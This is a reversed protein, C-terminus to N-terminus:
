TREAPPSPPFKRRLLARREYRDGLGGWPTDAFSVVAVLLKSKM